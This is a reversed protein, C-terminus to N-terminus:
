ASRGCAKEEYEGCVAAMNTRIRHRRRVPLDAGPSEDCFRCNACAKGPNRGSLIEVAGTSSMMRGPRMM